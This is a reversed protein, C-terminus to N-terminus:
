ENVDSQPLQLAPSVDSGRNYFQPVDGPILVMGVPINQQVTTVETAFPIIVQVNVEIHILIEIWTNNIGKEEVKTKINSRVDGIMNFRVPIRPGLNGLLANNTMQGLPIAFTIGDQEYKDNEIFEVDAINNLAELNGQEAYKLNQQALRTIDARIRNIIETNFKATPTGTRDSQQPVIEIINNIDIDQAIKTNVAKGIIITAINRTQAKAYRLLTPKIGENVIWLGAAQSLAFLVFTLLLVYRLPLPGRRRTNKRRFKLLPFGGKCAIHICFPPSIVSFNLFLFRLSNIKFCLKRKMEM